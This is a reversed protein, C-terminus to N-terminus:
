GTFYTPSSIPSYTPAISGIARLSLGSRNPSGADGTNLDVNHGLQRGPEALFVFFPKLRKECFMGLNLDAIRAFAFDRDRLGVTEKQGATGIDRRFKQLLRDRIWAHELLIDIKHAIPPFEVGHVFRERVTQGNEYDALATM